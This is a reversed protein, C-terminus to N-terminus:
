GETFHQAFTAGLDTKLADVERALMSYTEGALWVRGDAHRLTKICTLTVTNM